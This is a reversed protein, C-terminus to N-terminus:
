TTSVCSISFPSVPMPLFLRVASYTPPPAPSPVRSPATAPPPLPAAMPALAPAAARHQAGEQAPDRPPAFAPGRSGECGRSRTSACLPEGFSALNANGGLRHQVEPQIRGEM